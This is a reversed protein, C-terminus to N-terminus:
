AARQETGASILEAVQFGSRCGDEHFGYGLHAGAYWTSRHGQMARLGDQAALTQFTYMPHSMARSVIVKDDRVRDGPNVSVCYEVDGPLAQLRNMHYTMTLRDGPRRCTPVNVNWSAWASRRRPLISADTHLVVENTSYEYGGLASREHPDADVLLNLADDAHAAMVVADFRESWGGATRVTAGLQDRTVAIVPDGERVADAPLSNLIREVYNKSGGTITRWQPAKGLGILGHQDLFRLLYSVPFDLVRAPATSWVAATIPVIFHERFARGFGSEDLYHGLTRMTPRPDDLIQRADRYFRLIDPFMRLHSPRTVSRPQAFFGRVGCSSFELDCARCVLGLSMDSPQSAVGLEALLGIFRAYTRENYVIFGTDVALSGTPTEVVVTKVHGGAAPEAEFLRVQHDTRLAYAATLGSVGSGVVGVKM